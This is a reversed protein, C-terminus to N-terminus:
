RNASKSPARSLRVELIQPQSKRLSGELACAGSRCMPHRLLKYFLSVLAHTYLYAGLVRFGGCSSSLVKLESRGLVWFVLVWWCLTWAYCDLLSRIPSLSVHENPNTCMSSRSNYVIVIIVIGFGRSSRFLLDRFPPEQLTGTTTYPGLNPSRSELDERPDPIYYVRYAASSRYLM